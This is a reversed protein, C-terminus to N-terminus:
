SQSVYLGGVLFVGSLLFKQSKGIPLGWVVKLPMVLIIFDSIINPIQQGYYFKTTDICTGEVSADWFKNLPICMLASAVYIAVTWLIVISGVVNIAINM